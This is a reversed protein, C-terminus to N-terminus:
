IQNKYYQIISEKVRYGMKFLDVVIKEDEEQLLIQVSMSEELASKTARNILAILDKHNKSYYFYIEEEEFDKKTIVSYGTIAKNEKQIFISFNSSKVLLEGRWYVNNTNKNHIDIFNSHEIKSLPVINKTDVNIFNEKYVHVMTEQGDSSYGKNNMFAISEHNYDGVVYYLKYGKYKEEIYTFYESLIENFNDFSLFVSIQLYHEEPIVNLEMYGDIIGSNDNLLIEFNKNLIRRQIRQELDKKSTELYRVKFSGTNHEQIQQILKDRHKEQYNIIM